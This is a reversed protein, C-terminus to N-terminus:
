LVNTENQLDSLRIPRAVPGGTLTVSAGSVKEKDQELLHCIIIGSNSSQTVFRQFDFSM